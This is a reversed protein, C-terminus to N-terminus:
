FADVVKLIHDFVGYVFTKTYLYQILVDKEVFNCFMNRKYTLAINM